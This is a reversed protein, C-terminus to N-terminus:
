MQDPAAIGLMGLGVALVRATLDALMLRSRRTDADPSALVPCAEYFTTFTSALDFLYGCLRSPSWGGLAGEVAEPFGVLAMALSREAPQGLRPPATAAEAAGAVDAMNGARRFISRIRAHAYQLYPATNGELALMRDWDFVYDRTRDTSLDAYKVAGVGLMRAVASRQAPELDPNRAAVASGARQVGEDVLDVLKVADGGRSRFMKHDPGLVNGFAVHVAEVADPLWGALRAVAFCMELHQAQPAGVVYLLVDAGLRGVRDRIAALDTAAYGFGEDSKQVILPLPDGHRNTFGPPFVCLAGDNEVLLGLEQLDRVVEPLMENYFSEGVVDEDTLLVDLKAYVEDFYAISQAVLVHWLRMTEEDGSQLLVVRRRAREQFSVDADFSQRAQRYFTDLDGVSLEHVAEHEGLDLVHEILMGFPTGWDGVHNERVVREGAFELMRVLADGLITSRLHGVHMEKAVNPASYDVVVTRGPVRQEVGLRPHDALAAVDAAVIDDALTLNIFGPGSVEVAACLDGLEARAVIEGALELPVRGLRKALALVGNAQFDARDSPRLLPDAGAEVEDFAVRLRADVLRRADPM